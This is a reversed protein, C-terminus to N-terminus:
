WRVNKGREGIHAFDLKKGNELDKRIKAKDVEYVVKLYSDPVEKGEDLILPAVGGNNRLKLTYDGAKLEDKGLQVMAQTLRSKLRNVANQRVKLKRDWEEKQKKCAEIEMDLRNLVAIYSSGKAELEGTVAELTDNVAEDDPTEILMDYLEKYAGVLDFLSEM